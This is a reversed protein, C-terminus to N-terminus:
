PVQSMADVVEPLFILTVILGVFALTGLAEELIHKMAQDM